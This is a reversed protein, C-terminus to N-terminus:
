KKYRIIEINFIKISRIKQGDKKYKFIEFIYPIGIRKIEPGYIAIEKVEPYVKKLNIKKLNNEEWNRTIDTMSIMKERSAATNLGHWRYSFLIKNIFKMKSYKSIQLMLWWDELPAEPTFNGITEFISKRILYGNPIYNNVCLTRYTGFNEEKFRQKDINLYESFTHYAASKEDYFINQEKDWYCKKGQSDIFENDGVVLSYDPNQVLFNVETEIADKKAIDDSAIPYIFEGNSLSILRNLTITTGQNEQTEVVTRKFRKECIEKLENIKKFTNDKSGDDIIILEINQYTQDVISKITEQVYKEHNYAPIIVSVLPIPSSLTDFNHKKNM